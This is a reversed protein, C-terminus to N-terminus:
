IPEAHFKILHGDRRANFLFLFDKFARRSMWSVLARHEPRNLPTARGKTSGRQRYPRHHTSFKLIYSLQKLPNVLPAIVVARYIDSSDFSAKFKERAKRNGGIVVLNIHLIWKKERARYVIEFGGIVVAEALGTRDLRKRLMHRFSAPDLHDINSRDAAELLVTVIHVPRLDKQTVRLLEGIFWRRFERGCIPCFPKECHYHGTRCEALYETASGSGLLHESRESEQYVDNITEFRNGRELQRPEGTSKKPHIAM